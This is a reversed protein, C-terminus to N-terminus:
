LTATHIQIRFYLLLMGPSFLSFMYTAMHLYIINSLNLESVMPAKRHGIVDLLNNKSICAICLHRPLRMLVLGTPRM